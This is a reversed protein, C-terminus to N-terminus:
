DLVVMYCLLMLMLECTPPTFGESFYSKTVQSTKTRLIHFIIFTMNWDGGVLEADDDIYQITGNFGGNLYHINLESDM